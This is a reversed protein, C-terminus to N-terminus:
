YERANDFWFVKIVKSYRTEIMKAFDRYITLIEYRNKILYLWTYRSFDNIFIVFYRSGRGLQPSLLPGGYMRIFLILLQLLLTSVTILLYLPNSALIVHYVNLHVPFFSGLLGRSVLTKIRFLSVHGLHSHWLKISTSTPFVPATVSSYPLHLYTLEFLRGVNCAIGVIQRTQSDQMLCGCSSFLLSLGLETLQGVSLLNLHLKPVCFFMLSMYTTPLSPTSM